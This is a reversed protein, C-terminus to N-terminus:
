LVAKNKLYNLIADRWVGYGAARLHLGDYTYEPLLIQEPAIIHNIDIVDVSYKTCMTQLLENLKRVKPNLHTAHRVYFTLTVVPRIGKAKIKLVLEEYQQAVWEPERGAQLDNIGGEIFIIKPNLALILDLRALFGSIVDGSIGRNVVDSRQLLEAWEGEHTISNGLMVITATKAYVTKQKETEVEWLNGLPPPFLKKYFREWWNYRVSLYLWGALALLNISFLVLFASKYNM